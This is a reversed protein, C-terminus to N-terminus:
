PTQEVLLIPPTQVLSWPDITPYVPMPEHDPQHHKKLNIGFDSWFRVTVVQKKGM